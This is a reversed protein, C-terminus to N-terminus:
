AKGTRKDLSVHEGLENRLYALVKKNIRQKTTFFNRWADKRAPASELTFLDARDITGLERWSVPMAVSGKPKARLSWPLIASATLQNRLWDIYIRGKRKKKSATAVFRQPDATALGRALGSVFDTITDWDQTADLPIVLHIGKGGTVLPFSELEVAKLLDRLEFAAQRVATFQVAPDPDLDIVVRDPKRLKPWKAGWGHFEIVGFQAATILGEESAVAIYEKHEGEPDPIRRIGAAMGPLPHRQFFTEGSLGEPARVFSIPRDKLHLMMREAVSLYYAAVDGKTFGAEPYVIREAHTISAPVNRTKRSRRPQLSRLAGDTGPLKASKKQIAVTKGMLKARGVQRDERWGLFRAQRLQHDSTWGQFEIEARHVPEVWRSDRPAKELGVVPSPLKRLLSKLLGSTKDLEDSGFGTGVAGVYQLGELTEAAALLSSFQRRESPKYGIIVFDERRATKVKIWNPSRRSEYSSSAKKSVIGEAGLAAAKEFVLRGDAEIHSSLTLISGDVKKALAEELQEKRTSLPKGRVDMGRNVLIDFIVFSIQGSKNKLTEVLAAFDTLGGKDFVVAEGDLLTRKLGLNAFAAAISPFRNTWDLGERTYLCVHKGHVAAELRYGDYKTEHFWGQGSPPEKHLECLMPPIFAPLGLHASKRSTNPKEASPRKKKSPLAKEIQNRTRGTSISTSFRDISFGKVAYEDREKILLWNERKETGKMRILAWGGKMREGSLQFKLSGEALAKRPDPMTPKWTGIDWLMVTGAGYNGEPILGEFEAYSLPHDETRVALRKDTTDFSPGRTVAWSLLVGDLELRFDYHERTAWHHQV